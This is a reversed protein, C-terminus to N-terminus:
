DHKQYNVQAEIQQTLYLQFDGFNNIIADKMEQTLLTVITEYTIRFAEKQAEADFVDKDKLAEVYTQTTAMVCDGIISNASDLLRAVKESKTKEKINNIKASIFSVIYKAVIGLIPILCVEVIARLLDLWLADM